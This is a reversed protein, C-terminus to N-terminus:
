LVDEKNFSFPLLAAVSTVKTHVGDCLIVPTNECLLEVMVQRCAGCPSVMRKGDSMILIGVVDEKHYGKGYACFLANREACSTLGYSANEINVGTIYAGDKMKICAAVHYKSYPAYAHGLAAKAADMMDQYTTEKVM